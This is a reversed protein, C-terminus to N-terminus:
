DLKLSTATKNCRQLFKLARRGLECDEVIHCCYVVDPRKIVVRSRLLSFISRCDVVFRQQLASFASLPSRMYSNSAHFPWKIRVAAGGLEAPESETRGGTGVWCRPTATSARFCPSTVEVHAYTRARSKLMQQTHNCRPVRANILVAQVCLRARPTRSVAGSRQWSCRQFHISPSVNLLPHALFLTLTLTTRGEYLWDALGNFM